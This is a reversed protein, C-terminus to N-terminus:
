RGRWLRLASAATLAKAADVLLFPRIGATWAGQLAEVGTAGQVRHLWAALWLAGPLYLTLVGGLAALALRPLRRSSGALAGAVAAGLVFGILYGGTPGLLVAPGSRGGAFIPAGALGAALYLLQSAAGARAGLTLGALLVWLVQLTVPVPILPITVRAGLATLLAFAVVGAATRIRVAEQARTLFM